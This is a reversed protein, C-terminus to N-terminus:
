HYYSLDEVVLDLLHFDTILCNAFEFITPM